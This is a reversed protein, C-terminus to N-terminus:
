VVKEDIFLRSLRKPHTMGPLLIRDGDERKRISLSTCILCILICSTMQETFLETDLDDVETWYLQVDNGWSTWYGKPLMKQLTWKKLITYRSRIDAHWIGTIFRYGRPLDFRYMAMKRLYITYCSVLLRLIINVPMNEGDYLYKLLLTIM